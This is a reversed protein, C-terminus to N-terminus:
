QQEMNIKHDIAPVLAEVFANRFIDVIIGWNNVKLNELDGSFEATTAIRDKPRNKFIEGLGEIIGEYIMRLPGHDEEQPKLVNLNEIVPKVYGKLKGENAAAEIYLGIQGDQVDFNGYAMFFDNLETAKLDEMKADLDFTPVDAFPDLKMNFYFSGNEMVTGRSEISAVLTESIKESNTLNSAEAQINRMYLDIDPSKQYDRYHIEGNDVRLKNIRLPFLDQIPERWDNNEGNPATAVFNLYPNFIEVEGVLAGKTLERWQVSLDIREVQFFPTKMKKEVRDIVLCDIVYAGRLLHIDVDYVKGSYGNLESLTNNLYKLVIYPLAIRFSILILVIVILTIIVPRKIKAM